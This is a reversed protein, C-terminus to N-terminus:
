RHADATCSEWRPQTPDDSLDRIYVDAVSWATGVHIQSWQNGDRARRGLRTTPESQVGVVEGDARDFLCTGQPVDIKDAHSMGFGHGGGTGSAHVGDSTYSVESAAVYGLVRAYPRVIEVQRFDGLNAAIVGIVDPKDVIAIVPSKGDPALRIKTEILFRVRTRLDPPTEWSTAATTSFSPQKDGPAAIWVNTIVSDPLYGRLELLEDLVRVSRRSGTREALTLPAGRTVFVGADRQATGAADSLEIPVGAVPWTDERAIWMALRASDDEFAVRIRTRSEGIVPLVHDTDSGVHRTRTPEAEAERLWASGFRRLRTRHPIRDLIGPDTLEAPAVSFEARPLTPPSIEVM